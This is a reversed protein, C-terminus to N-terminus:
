NNGVNIKLMLPIQAVTDILNGPLFPPDDLLTNRQHCRHRFRRRDAAQLLYALRPM